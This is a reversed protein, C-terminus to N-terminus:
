INAAFDVCLGDPLSKREPVSAFVQKKSIEGSDISYDFQYILGAAGDTFYM